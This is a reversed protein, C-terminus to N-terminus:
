NIIGGGAVAGLVLGLSFVYKIYIPKIYTIYTCKHLIYCQLCGAGRAEQLHLAFM